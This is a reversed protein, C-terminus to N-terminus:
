SYSAIITLFFVIYVVIATRNAIAIYASRYHCHYYYIKYKLGKFSDTTTASADSMSAYGIM